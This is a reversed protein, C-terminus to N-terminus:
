AYRLTLGKFLGKKNKLGKCLSGSPVGLELAAHRLSPWAKICQGAENFQIIARRKHSVVKHKAHTKPYVRHKLILPGLDKKVRGESKFLWRFGHSSQQIGHCAMKISQQGVSLSDAASQAHTWEKMLRGQLTYQLVPKRECGPKTATATCNYSNPNNDMFVQEREILREIVCHELVRWSFADVGHKDYSRQLHISHHLGRRLLGFHQKMRRDLDCSSGIYSKGTTLNEIKYIGSTAVM